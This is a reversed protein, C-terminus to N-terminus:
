RCASWWRTPQWERLLARSRSGIPVGNQAKLVCLERAQGTVVASPSASGSAGYDFGLLLRPTSM